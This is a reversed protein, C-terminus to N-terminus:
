GIPGWSRLCRAPEAGDVARRFALKHELEGVLRGVLGPEAGPIVLRAPAEGVRAVVAEEPRATAYRELNEMPVVMGAADYYALESGAPPDVVAALPRDLGLPLAPVLLHNSEGDIIRLNSYMNFAAATRLEAYPALGNALGLLVVLAV